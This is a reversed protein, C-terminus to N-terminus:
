PCASRHRFRDESTQEKGICLRSNVLAETQGLFRNQVRALTGDLSDGFWNLVLFVIVLILGLPNFKAYWYSFGAAVLSLFGLATLHDSNVASPMRQAMWILAKKELAALASTHDRKAQRFEAM